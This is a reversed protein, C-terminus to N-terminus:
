KKRLRTLSAVFLYGWAIILSIGGIPTIYVFWQVKLFVYGVLSGSFCIGGFIFLKILIKPWHWRDDTLFLILLPMATWYLYRAALELTQLDKTILKDKLGHSIFAGLLISFGGFLTATLIHYM